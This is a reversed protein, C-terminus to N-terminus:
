NGASDTRSDNNSTHIDKDENDEASPEVAGPQTTGDIQRMVEDGKGYRFATTLQILQQVTMLASSLSYLAAITAFAYYYYPVNWDGKLVMYVLLFGFTYQMVRRYSFKGDEGEFSPKFYDFALRFPHLVWDIAMKLREYDRM